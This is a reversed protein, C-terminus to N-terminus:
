LLGLASLRSRYRRGVTVANHRNRTFERGAEGLRSRADRDEVLRRMAWAAHDTDPDAWYQGDGWPYQGAEVPVLRASVPIATDPRVLEDSGSWATAIVPKGLLMAEAITRGFGESRHLSVYCDCVSMLGIVAAKDMTDHLIRVRPDGGCAALFELWRPKESSGNMVKFVLDVPEDGRPFAKRFAALAAHPNKRDLYSNADFVYLFLFRGEPLGFRSRATPATTPPLEVAMPMHIVPVRATLSYSEQTFRSSVWLEDVLDFVSRWGEPWEPLEWPWYGVVHRNEFVGPGRELLFRATDFGTLCFVTTGFKVSSDVHEAISTDSKRSTIKESFDFVGFDVGNAKLSASMMRVDEGIGLEGYAYGILNCGRSTPSGVAASSPRLHDPTLRRATRPAFITKWVGAHWSELEVAADETTPPHRPVNSFGAMWCYYAHRTLSVGNPLRVVRTLAAVMENSLLFGLNEEALGFTYVWAAVRTREDPTPPGLDPRGGMRLAWVLAALNTMPADASNDGPDRPANLWKRTGDDILDDVGMEELGHLFLWAAARHPGGESAVDLSEVVDSRVDLLYSLIRPVRFVGSKHHLDVNEWTIARQEATPPSSLYERRGFCFWWMLFRKATEENKLDSGSTVDMRLMFAFRISADFYSPWHDGTILRSHDL